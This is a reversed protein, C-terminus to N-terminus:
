GTKQELIMKIAKLDKNNAKRMMFAMIPAFVKSFGAPKGTNRLTMKTSSESVASWTYTTEMPFPGEATRMVLKSHPILEVIEYTYALERGLFKARFDIKSGLQLPKSTQWEASKINVYWKPANDPNVAYEAVKDLPKNILIETQVDVMTIDQIDIAENKKLQRNQLKM